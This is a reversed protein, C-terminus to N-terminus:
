VIISIVWELGIQKRSIITYNKETLSDRNPKLFATYGKEEFNNQDATPDFVFMVNSSDTKLSLRLFSDNPVAIKMADGPKAALYISLVIFVIMVIPFLFTSVIFARRRVRTLYERKIIIFIKNM